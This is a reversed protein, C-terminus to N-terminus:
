PDDLTMKKGYSDLFNSAIVIFGLQIGGNEGDNEILGMLELVLSVPAGCSTTLVDWTRRCRVQRKIVFAELLRSGM